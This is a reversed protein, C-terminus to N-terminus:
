DRQDPNKANAGTAAGDPLPDATKGLEVIEIYADKTKWRQGQALPRLSKKGKTMRNM